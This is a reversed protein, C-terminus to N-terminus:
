DYKGGGLGHVFLDGLFLRAFLTTTLARTRIKFGARQLSQWSSVLDEPRAGRQLTPWSESGARLTFGEICRRMFLRERRKQGGRWAWFPAELWDGEGALDPVPH